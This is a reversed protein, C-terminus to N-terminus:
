LSYENDELRYPPPVASGDEAMRVRRPGLLGLHMWVSSSGPGGNFSFTVPRSALDKIGERTYAIYFISATPKDEEDRLLFTGATAKYAVEQGGITVKHKSEVLKEEPEKSKEKASEKAPEKNTATASPPVANSATDAADLNVTAVALALGVTLIMQERMTNLRRGATRFPLELAAANWVWCRSRLARLRANDGPAPPTNARLPAQCVDQKAFSARPTEGGARGIM